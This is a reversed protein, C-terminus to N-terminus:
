FAKWQLYRLPFKGQVFRSYCFLKIGWIDKWTESDSMTSLNRLKMWWSKRTHGYNGREMHQFVVNRENEYSPVHTQPEITFLPNFGSPIWESNLSWASCKSWTFFAHSSTLSRWIITLWWMAVLGVSAPFAGLGFSRFKFRLALAYM